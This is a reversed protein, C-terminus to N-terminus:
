TPGSGLSRLTTKVAVPFTRLTTGEAAARATRVAATTGPRRRVCVREPLERKLVNVGNDM